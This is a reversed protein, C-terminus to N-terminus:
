RFGNSLLSLFEGLPWVEIKPDFRLQQTGLYVLIKRRVNKMESVARLGKLMEPHVTTSSKIEVAIM